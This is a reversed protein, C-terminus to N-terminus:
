LLVEAAALAVSGIPVIRICGTGVRAISGCVGYLSGGVVMRLAGSAGRSCLADAACEGRLLAALGVDRAAPAATASRSAAWVVRMAHPSRVGSRCSTSSGASPICAACASSVLAAGVGLGALVGVGVGVLVGAGVCIGVGALVGVGGGALVGAGVCVGVGALVGVGMGELVGTGLCVGVGALVGVGMGELVGTGLYVGVGALVGIGMGVDVRRAGVWSM